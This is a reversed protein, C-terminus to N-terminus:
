IGVGTYRYKGRNWIFFMFVVILSSWLGTIGLGRVWAAATVKGLFCQIPFSALYPFPLLHLIKEWFGPFFALPIMGGGILSVSFRIMVLLSWVNDAWFALMEISTNILFSLVGSFLLAAIGMCISTFTFSVDGPLGFLLLFIFVTLFFQVIFIISNAFFQVYKYKFFSVPYVLYRTLTGNYIDKAVLGMGPGNIIKGVLPVLLYYFMLGHFSYGQMTEANKYDFVARWLFFAVGVHAFISVVFQLWFDFRYALIKRIETSLVQILWRPVAM